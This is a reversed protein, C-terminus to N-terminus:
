RNYRLPHVVASYRDAAIFLFNLISSACAFTILVFRVLCTTKSHGFSDLMHFCMHYPISLGVLLDSVGLSFIFQNSVTSSLQRSAIIAFITLVNGAIAACIIICYVTIWLAGGIYESM